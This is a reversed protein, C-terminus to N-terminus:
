GRPQQPRVVSGLAKLYGVDGGRVSNVDGTSWQQSILRARVVVCGLIPQLIKPSDLQFGERKTSLPSCLVVECGEARAAEVAVCGRSCERRRFGMNTRRKAWAPSVWSKPSLLGAGAVAGSVLYFVLVDRCRRYLRYLRGQRTMCVLLVGRGSQM